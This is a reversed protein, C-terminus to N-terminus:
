LGVHGSSGRVLAPRFWPGGPAPRVPICVGPPQFATALEGRPVIGELGHQLVAPSHQVYRRGVDFLLKM